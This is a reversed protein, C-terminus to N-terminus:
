SIAVTVSKKTIENVLFIPDSGQRSVPNISTTPIESRSLTLGWKKKRGFYSSACRRGNPFAGRAADEM